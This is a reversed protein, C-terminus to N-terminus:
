GMKHRCTRLSNWCMCCKFLGCVFYWFVFIRWLHIDPYNFQFSCHCCLGFSSFCFVPVWLLFPYLKNNVLSVIYTYRLVSAREHLCQQLPFAILMLYKSHTNTTKRVWCPNHMRCVTMLPRDPEVMNKWSKRFVKNFLFIHTKIKETGKTQLM